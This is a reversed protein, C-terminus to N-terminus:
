KYAMRRTEALEREMMEFMVLCLADYAEKDLPRSPTGSKAHITLYDAYNLDKSWASVEPTTWFSGHM